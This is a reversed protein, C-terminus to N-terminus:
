APPQFSMTAPITSIHMNNVDFRNMCTTGSNYREKKKDNQTANQSVPKVTKPPM